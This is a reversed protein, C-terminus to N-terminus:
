RPPDPLWAGHGARGSRVPARRVPPQETLAAIYRALLGISDPEWSAGCVLAGNDDLARNTCVAVQRALNVRLSGPTECMPCPVSPAYAPTTWGTMVAAQHRWSRLDALLCGLQDTPVAGVLLRITNEATDRPDLRLRWCWRHVAVTIASHAALAEWSGPPRSRPVGRSTPGDETVSTADTVAEALQALLGPHTTTWARRMRRNRHHDRDHIPETHQHPDCLEEVLAAIDALMQAPTRQPRRDGHGHYGSYQRNM